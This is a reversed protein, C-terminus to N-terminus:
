CAVRAIPREQLECYASVQFTVSGTCLDLGPLLMRSTYMKLVQELASNDTLLREIDLSQRDVEVLLKDRSAKLSSV